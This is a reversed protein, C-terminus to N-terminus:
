TPATLLQERASETMVAVAPHVIRREATIAHFQVRCRESIGVVRFGYRQAAEDAVVSPLVIFGRADAAVVQMLALDEFEAIVRPQVEV